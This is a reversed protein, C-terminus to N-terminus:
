QTSYKKTTQQHKLGANIIKCFQTAVKETPHKSLNMALKSCLLRKRLDQPLDNWKKLMDEMQTPVELKDRVKGILVLEQNSMWELNM